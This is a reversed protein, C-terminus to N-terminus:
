SRPLDGGMWDAQEMEEIIDQQSELKGGIFLALGTIGGATKRVAKQRGIAVKNRRKIPALFEAPLQDEAIARKKLDRFATVLATAYWALIGGLFLGHGFECPSNGPM